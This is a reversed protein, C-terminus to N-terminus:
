QSPFILSSIWNFTSPRAVVEDGDEVGIVTLNSPMSTGIKTAETEPESSATFVEYSYPQIISFEPVLDCDIM